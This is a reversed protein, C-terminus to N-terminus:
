IGRGKTGGNEAALQEEELLALDVPTVLGSSVAYEVLRVRRNTAHAALGGRVGRVGVRDLKDCVNDLKRNFRTQTWGLRRAADASSPVTAVGGDRKLMPEALALILQKQSRTFTIAGMTTEGALGTVLPNEQWAPEDNRLTFEYTCPGATFMVSTEGFIIPLRAGPALWAQTGSRPDSVTASIRTGTNVLWWLGHEYVVRLFRRHLYPNDDLTLDAERGIDFPQGPILDYTEGEFDVTVSPSESM